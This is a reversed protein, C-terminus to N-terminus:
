TGGDLPPVVAAAAGYIQQSEATAGDSRPPVSLVRILHGRSDHQYEVIQITGKAVRRNLWNSVRSLDVECVGIAVMFERVTMPQARLVDLWAQEDIDWHKIPQREDECHVPRGTKVARWCTSEQQCTTCPDSIPMRITCGWSM